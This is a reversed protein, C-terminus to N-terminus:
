QGAQIGTPQIWGMKWAGLICLFLLISFGVRFGLARAMNSSKARGNRGDQMMFYLASGLSGLIAVFAVLVLYKM